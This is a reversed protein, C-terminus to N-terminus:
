FGQDYCVVCCIDQCVTMRKIGVYNTGSVWGTMVLRHPSLIVSPPPASISALCIALPLFPSRNTQKLYKRDHFRESM